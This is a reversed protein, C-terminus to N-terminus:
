NDGELFISGTLPPRAVSAEGATCNPIFDRCSKSKPLECMVGNDGGGRDGIDMYIQM